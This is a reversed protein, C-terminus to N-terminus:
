DAKPPLGVGGDSCICKGDETYNIFTSGYEISMVDCFKECNALKKTANNNMAVFVAAIILLIIIIAITIKKM